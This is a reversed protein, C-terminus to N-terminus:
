KGKNLIYKLWVHPLNVALFSLSGLLYYGKNYIGKTLRVDSCLKCKGKKYDKDHQECLTGFKNEYWKRFYPINPM